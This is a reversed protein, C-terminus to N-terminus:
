EMEEMGSHHPNRSPLAPGVNGGLGGLKPGPKACDNELSLGVTVTSWPSCHLRSVVSCDGWACYGLELGDQYIWDGRKGSVSLDRTWQGKKWKGKRKSTVQRPHQGKGESSDGEGFWFSSQGQGQCTLEM